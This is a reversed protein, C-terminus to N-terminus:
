EEDLLLNNDVDHDIIETLATLPNRAVADEEVIDGNLDKFEKVSDEMAKNMHDKREQAMVKM